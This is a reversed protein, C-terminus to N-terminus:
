AARTKRVLLRDEATLCASHPLETALRTAKV